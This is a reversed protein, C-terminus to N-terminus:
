ETMPASSLVDVQLDRLVVLEGLEDVVGDVRGNISAHLRQEDDLALNVTFPADAIRRMALPLVDGEWSLMAWDLLLDADGFGALATTDDGLPALLPVALQTGLRLYLDTFTVPRDSLVGPPVTVDDLPIDLDEVLLWGDETTRLVAQGGLVTPDVDLPQGGRATASVAVASDTSIDLVVRRRLQDALSASGDAPEFSCAALLSPILIAPLLALKNM